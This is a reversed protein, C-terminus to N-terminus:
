GAALELRELFTSVCCVTPLPLWSLQTELRDAVQSESKAEDSTCALVQRVPPTTFKITLWVMRGAM